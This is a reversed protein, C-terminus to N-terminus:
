GSRYCERGPIERYTGHLIALMCLGSAMWRLDVGEWTKRLGELLLHTGRPFTLSRSEYRIAIEDLYSDEDFSGWDLIVNIGTRENPTKSELVLRKALRAAAFRGIGKAGQYPRGKPSKGGKRKTPTGPEFLANLVSEPNM